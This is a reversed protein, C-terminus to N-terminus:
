RRFDEEIGFCTERGAYQERMRRPDVGAPRSRLYPQEVFRHSAAAVLVVTAIWVPLVILGGAAPAFANFLLLLPLHYLYASYSIRGLAVLPPSAVTVTLLSAPVRVVAGLGMALLIPFVAWGPQGLIATGNRLV